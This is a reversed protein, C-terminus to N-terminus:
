HSLDTERRLSEFVELIKVVGRSFSDFFGETMQGLMWEVSFWEFTLELFIFDPGAADPGIANEVAADARFPQVHEGDFVALVYIPLHPPPLGARSM